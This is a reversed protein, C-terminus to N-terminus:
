SKRTKEGSFNKVKKARWRGVDQVLKLIWRVLFGFLTLSFSSRASGEVKFSRYYIFIVYIKILVFSIARENHVNCDPLSLPERAMSCLILHSFLNIYSEYSAAQAM